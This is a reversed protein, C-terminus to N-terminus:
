PAQGPHPHLVNKMMIAPISSNNPPQRLINLM